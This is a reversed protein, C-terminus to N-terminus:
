AVSAPSKAPSRRYGSGWGGVPATRGVGCSEQCAAGLGAPDGPRDAGLAWLRRHSDIMSRTTAPRDDTVLMTMGLAAVSLASWALSDAGPCAVTPACAGTM